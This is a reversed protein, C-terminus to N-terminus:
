STEKTREVKARCVCNESNANTLTTLLTPKNAAYSYYVNLLYRRLSTGAGHKCRATLPPSWFRPRFPSPLSCFGASPQFQCVSSLCPLFRSALSLLSFASHRPTALLEYRTSILQHPALPLSLLVFVTFISYCSLSLLSHAPSFVRFALSVCLRKYWLFLPKYNLTPFFVGVSLGKSLFAM